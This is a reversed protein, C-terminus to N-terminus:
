AKAESLNATSKILRILLSRDAALNHLSSKVHFKIKRNQFIRIFPNIQILATTYFLEVCGGLTPFDQHLDLRNFTSNM